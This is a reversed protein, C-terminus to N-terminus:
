DLREENLERVAKDIPVFRLDVPDLIHEVGCGAFESTNYLQFESQNSEQMMDRFSKDISLNIVNSKRFLLSTSDPNRFMQQCVGAAYADFMDDDDDFATLIYPNNASKFTMSQVSLPKTIKEMGEYVVKRMGRKSVNLDSLPQDPHMLRFAEIFKDRPLDLLEDVLNRAKLFNDSEAEGKSCKIEQHKAWCNSLIRKLRQYDNQAFPERKSAYQYIDWFNLIPPKNRRHGVRIADDLMNELGAWITRILNEDESHTILTLFPRYLVVMIMTDDPMAYDCYSKRTPYEYLKISQPNSEKELSWNQIDEIVHLYCEGDRVGMTKYGPKGDEKRPFLVKAYDQQRNKGVWAKVQHRSWSLSEGNCIDFDEASEYIVSWKKLEQELHSKEVEAIIRAIEVLSVILGIKGQHVYGDWTPTAGNVRTAMNIM